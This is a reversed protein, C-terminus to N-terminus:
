IDKTVDKLNEVNKGGQKESPQPGYLRELELFENERAKKPIVGDEVKKPTAKESILRKKRLIVFLSISIAIFFLMSLMIIAILGISINDEEVFNVGKFDLYGEELEDTSSTGSVPKYGKRNIKWSFNGDPIEMSFSGNADTTTIYQKGDSAKIKVQVGELPNGDEDTVKGQITSMNSEQSKNVQIMLFDEHWFGAADTVFMTIYFVGPHNFTYNPAIGYLTMEIFGDFFTWTFNVIGVNDSSLNGNFNVITGEQIIIDYGANAVPPTIDQVNVILTDTNSNGAEDFVKLTITFIGPVMFSHNVAMGYKTINGSEDSITWTWNVIGVNDSSETGLFSAIEGEYITRDIGADATPPTIDNVTVKITDNMWNGAADSVNLIVYYVGPDDFTYNVIKGYLFKNLLNNKLLWTWNVVGVNDSSGSGNFTVSTDENVTLNFGANAIPLTIDLVTVNFSDIACNGSTDTVNLIINYVGPDNFTYKPIMGYLVVKDKDTFTWTWNM